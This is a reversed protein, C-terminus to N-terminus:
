TRTPSVTRKCLRRSRLGYRQAIGTLNEGWQVIHIVSSSVLSHAYLTESGSLFLLAFVLIGLVTKRM